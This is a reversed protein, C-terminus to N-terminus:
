HPRFETLLFECDKLRDSPKRKRVTIYRDGAEPKPLRRDGSPLELGVLDEIAYHTDDYGVHSVTGSEGAERVLRRVEDIGIRQTALMGPHNPIPLTTLRLM